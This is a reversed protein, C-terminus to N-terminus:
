SPNLQITAGKVTTDGGSVLTTTGKVNMAMNGGVNLNLDGDTGLYTQSARINAKGMVSAALDGGCFIGADGAVEIHAGGGVILRAHGSIKIDGNEDATISLGAKNYLKMDGVAHAIVKGDHSVEVYSGASSRVFMREHGPTNDIQVQHGAPSEFVQNYGYQADYGSKDTRTTQKDTM